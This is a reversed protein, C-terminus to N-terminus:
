LDLDLEIGFNTNAIVDDVASLPQKAFKEELKRQKLDEEEDDPQAAANNDAATGSAVEASDYYMRANTRLRSFPDSTVTSKKQLAAKRRQESAKIEAKRIEDLNARRNRENVKALKELPTDSTAINLKASQREDIVSIQADIASVEELDNQSLAIIRKQSLLTKQMVANSPMNASLKQRLDIMANIEATTLVRERMKQLQQLKNEISRVSPLLLNEYKMTKKWKEFEEQTFASDSCIGMEFIRESSGHLLLLSNNVTRNMFTYTKSNVVAKVQCVRYITKRQPDNRDEGLNVRVFCDVITKEFEPYHCYKALHSRGIRIRNIDELGIERSSQKSEAWVVDDDAEADDEDYYEDVQEEDEDDEDYKLNTSYESDNTRQRARVTKEERRRKLESLKNKKSSSTKPTDRTSSRTAKSVKGARKSERLRQALYKRENFSQMEQSREFLIQEREIEALSELWNMDEENKYKGMLPYPNVFEEELDDDYQSGEDGNMSFENHDANNHRLSRASAVIEEDEDDLDNELGEEGSTSLDDDSLKRRRKSSSKRKSASRKRSSKAGTDDEQAGALALLDEDLDSM